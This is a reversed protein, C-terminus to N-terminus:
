IYQGLYCTPATQKIYMNYGSQASYMLTNCIYLLVICSTVDGTPFVTRDMENRQSAETFYSQTKYDIEWFLM